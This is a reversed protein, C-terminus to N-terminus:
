GAEAAGFFEDLQAPLPVTTVWLSSLDGDAIAAELGARHRGADLPELRVRPGALPVKELALLPTDANSAASMPGLYVRSSRNRLTAAIFRVATTVPADLPM